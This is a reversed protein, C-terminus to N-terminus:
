TSATTSITGSFKLTASYSAVPDDATGGEFSFETLFGSASWNAATSEGSSQAFTVTITEAAAAIPTEIASDHDFHGQVELQGPDVLDSPQFTMWTSTDNSTTDIPTRSIGTWSLNTVETLFTSNFALTLGHLQDAAPM